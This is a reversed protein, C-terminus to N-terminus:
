GIREKEAKRRSRYAGDPRDRKVKAGAPGPIRAGNRSKTNKQRRVSASGGRRAGEISQRRAAIAKENDIIALQHIYISSLLTYYVARHLDGIAANREAAALSNMVSRKAAATRDLTGDTAPEMEIYLEAVSRWYAILKKIEQRVDPRFGIQELTHRTAVMEEPTVSRNAILGKPSCRM